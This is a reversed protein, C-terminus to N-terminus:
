SLASLMKNSCRLMVESYYLADAESMTEPDYKDIKETFDAYEQMIASYDMLLAMVNSSTKYDKMFSVYRDTFEEYSDLFAKLEPDVVAPAETPEPTPEETPEPTPEETPEPAPKEAPEPASAKAPAATTEAAARPEEAATNKSGGCGAATLALVLVLVLVLATFSEKRKM